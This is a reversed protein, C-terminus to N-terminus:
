LYYINEHLSFNLFVRGGEGLKALLFSLLSVQDLLVIESMFSPHHQNLFFIFCKLMKWGCRGNASCSDNLTYTLNTYSWCSILKCSASVNHTIYNTGHYMKQKHRYYNDQLIITDLSPSSPFTTQQESFNDKQRLKKKTETKGDKCYNQRNKARKCALCRCSLCISSLAHQNLVSNDM